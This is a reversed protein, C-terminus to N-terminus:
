GDSLRKMFVRSTEIYGCKPLLEFLRGAMPASVLLVPAGLERAKVEAARLLRLGDGSQRHASAVFFSESVAMLIGYHPLTPTLFSLFGTLADGETAAFAHLLGMAELRQYTDVQPNPVPLGAARSEETYEAILAPFERAGMIAEVTSAAIMTM